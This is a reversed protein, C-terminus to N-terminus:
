PVLEEQKAKGGLVSAVGEMPRRDIPYLPRRSRFVVRDLLVFQAVWVVGFAAINATPLAVGKALGSWDRGLRAVAAVAITSLVLGAFSLSVFPVVERSASHPGSRRWVWRRNLVYSPGIGVTVALVNALSAGLGVMLTLMVLLTNSLVTTFASVSLARGVKAFFASVHPRRLMLDATGANM